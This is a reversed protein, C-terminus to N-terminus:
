GVEEERDKGGNFIETIVLISFIIAAGALLFGIACNLISLSHYVLAESFFRISLLSEAIIALSFLLLAKKVIPRDLFGM